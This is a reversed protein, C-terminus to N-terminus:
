SKTDTAQTTATNNNTTMWNLVKREDKSVDVTLELKTKTTEGRTRQWM